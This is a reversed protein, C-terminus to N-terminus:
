KKLLHQYPTLVVHGKDTLYFSNEHQSVFKGERDPLQAYGYVAGAQQLFQLARTAKAIGFQAAIARRSFPLTLFEQQIFTFVERAVPDRVAVKRDFRYITSHPGEKVFGSGQTAFPEIAITQGSSLVTSDGNDYNPITMGAHVTWREISHGSLNRVPSFGAACIVDSVSVGIQSLATGPKVLKAAAMLADFSAAVLAAHESSNGVVVTRANDAVYGDIHAGLDLKVMDGFSFTLPDDPLPTYHAAMSNLSIGVPFALKAGSSVIFKEVEEAVSLLSVGPKILSAGHHLAQAAVLGPKQWLSLSM